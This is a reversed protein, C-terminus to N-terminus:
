NKKKLLYAFLIINGLLSIGGIVTGAIALGKSTDQGNKGNLGDKGDAGNAGDKGNLGTEGDKGDAGDEGDVGDKGDPIVVTTVKDSNLYTITLITANDEANRETKIDKIQLAENVVNEATFGNYDITVDAPFEVTETSNHLLTVVDGKKAVAVADAVTTYIKGNVMVGCAGNDNICTLKEDSDTFSVDTGNPKGDLDLEFVGTSSYTNEELTVSQGYTLVIAPKSGSGGLASFDTNKITIITDNKSGKGEDYMKVGRYNDFKCGDVTIDTDGYAWLGYKDFSKKFTCNTFNAKSSSAYAGNAFVCNTYSVETVQYIGFAVNMFGANTIYGGEAKSLTLDEFAVKKGHATIYGQVDLYIEAKENKGVFKITDFSGTINTKLIVKDYIEVVVDGTMTKSATLADELSTYIVGNIVAVKSNEAVKQNIVEQKVVPKTADLKSVDMIVVDNVDKADVYQVDSELVVLNNNRSATLDQAAGQAWEAPTANSSVEAVVYVPTDAPYYETNWSNGSVVVNPMDNNDNANIIGTVISNVKEGCLYVQGNFYNNSFVNNYTSGHGGVGAIGGIGFYWNSSTSVTANIYSDCVSTGEQGNGIVGGVWNSGSVTGIVSCSYARCDGAGAIGGLADFSCTATGNFHCDEFYTYVHGCLGGVYRVGSVTGTVTVNEVKCTYGQGALGGVYYNGSISVNSLTLNKVTPQATETMGNGLIYGFFGAYDNSGLVKVNSITKGNGDFYGSFKHTSNGIPTWDDVDHLDIDATLQIYKGAYNNGANVDDRFAKLEDVNSITVDASAVQDAKVTKIPSSYVCVGVIAIIFALCLTALFLSKTKGKM